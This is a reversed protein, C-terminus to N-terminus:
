NVLCNHLILVPSLIIDYGYDVRPEYGTYFEDETGEDPLIYIYYFGVSQLLDGMDEEWVQSLRGCYDWLHPQYVYVTELDSEQLDFAFAQRYYCGNEVVTLHSTESITSPNV